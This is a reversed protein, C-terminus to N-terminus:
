FAGPAFVGGLAPHLTYIGYGTVAGVVLAVILEAAGGSRVGGPLLRLRWGAPWLLPVGKMN